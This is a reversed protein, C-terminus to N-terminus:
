KGKVIQVLRTGQQIQWGRREISRKLDDVQDQQTALHSIGVRALLEDQRITSYAVGVQCLMRAKFNVSTNRVLTLSQTRHRTADVPASGSM